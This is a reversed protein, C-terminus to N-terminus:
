DTNIHVDLTPDGYSDSENEAHRLATNLQQMRKRAESPDPKRAIQVWAQNYSGEENQTTFPAAMRHYTRDPDFKSQLEVPEPEGLHECLAKLVPYRGVTLLQILENVHCDISPLSDLYAQDEESPQKLRQPCDIADGTLRILQPTQSDSGERQRCVTLKFSMPPDDSGGNDRNSVVKKALKIFEQSVEADPNLTLEAMLGVIESTPMARLDEETYTTM